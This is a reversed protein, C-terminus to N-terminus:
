DAIIGLRAPDLRGMSRLLGFAAIRRDAQARTLEIRADYLEREADLVNIVTEKGAERLKHRADFVEEAIVVANQLLETRESATRYQNWALRAQENVQRRISEHNDQSAGYDVAARNVGAVTAFGSFLNWTAAVVVGADERTGRVLDNDTERNATGVLEITPYYDARARRRQESAVEVAALSADIAPNEDEAITVTQEQSAPLSGVPPEAPTMRDLDPATGFVQIYRATADQVGGEFTVRREKAIQLRSKAQLVDVAIGAGRRVREDELSLQRRITDENHRALGVLANQRRVEIYAEIGDFLINQRTGDLAFSAVDVDLRASRVDSPTAFGDFLRQTIRGGVVEKTEFWSGGGAQKTVPSDIYNPGYEGFADVRPLYGSYAQRIGQRNSEVAKERAQIEPNTTLLNKLAENLPQAASPYPLAALAVVLWGRAPKLVVSLV